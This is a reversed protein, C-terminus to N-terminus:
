FCLELVYVLWNLTSFVEDSTGSDEEESRAIVQNSNSRTSSLAAITSILEDLIVHRNDIWIMVDCSAFFVTLAQISVHVILLELTPTLM